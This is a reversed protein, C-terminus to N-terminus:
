NFRYNWPSSCITTPNKLWTLEELVNSQNPAVASKLSASLNNKASCHHDKKQFQM